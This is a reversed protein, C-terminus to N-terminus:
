GRQRQVMGLTELATLAKFASRPHMGAARAVQNGTFGTATDWLTRLVAVRTWSRFVEDLSRHFVM